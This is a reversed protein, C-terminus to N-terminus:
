DLWRALFKQMDDSPGPAAAAKACGTLVIPLCFDSSFRVTNEMSSVSYTVSQTFTTVQSPTPLFTTAVSYASPAYMPTTVTATIKTGPKPQMPAYKTLGTQLQYSVSYPGAAAGGAAPENANGGSQVTNVTAPGATGTVTKYDAETAPSSWSGTM